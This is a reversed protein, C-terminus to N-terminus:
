DEDRAGMYDINILAGSETAYEVKRLTIDPYLRTILSKIAVDPDAHGVDDVESIIKLLVRSLLDGNSTRLYREFFHIFEDSDPKGEMFQRLSERFTDEFFDEFHYGM